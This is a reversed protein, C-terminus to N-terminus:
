KVLDLAVLDSLCREQGAAEAQMLANLIRIALDESPIYGVCQEWEATLLSEDSVDGQAKQFGVAYSKKGRTSKDLWVRKKQEDASLEVAVYDGSRALFKMAM